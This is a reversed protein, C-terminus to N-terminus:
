NRKGLRLRQVGAEGVVVPGRPGNTVSSLGKRDLMRLRVFSRGDDNSVLVVGALGVIIIRGDPLIAAGDLLVDTGTDIRSWHLGRDDSRYLHGRLGAALVSSDGVALIAFFSGSYPSPLSVWRMGGDDSRYLHGGEAAVYLEGGRARAVANLHPQELEADDDMRAAHRTTQQSAAVLESIRFSRGQPEGHALTAYAGVVLVTGDSACSVDLFPQRADPAFHATTWTSGGDRTTLITEDHGVVYGVQDDVFCAGTLLVDVPVAAQRWHEGGDESLLIHGREGVAVLRGAPTSAVTTLLSQVALPAGSAAVPAEASWAVLSILGLLVGLAWHHDGSPARQSTV